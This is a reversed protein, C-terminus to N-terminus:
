VSVPCAVKLVAGAPQSGARPSGSWATSHASGASPWTRNVIRGSWGSWGVSTEIVAVTGSSKVSVSGSFLVTDALNVGFGRTSTTSSLRFTWLVLPAVLVSRAVTLPTGSVLSTTRNLRLPACVPFPPIWKTPPLFPADPLPSTPQLTFVNVRTVQLSAVGDKEASMSTTRGLLTGEWATVIVAFATPASSSPGEPFLERSTVIGQAKPNAAIRRRLRTTAPQRLVSFRGRHQSPPTRRPSRLCERASCPLLGVTYPRRLHPPVAFEGTAWM